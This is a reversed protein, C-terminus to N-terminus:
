SQCLRTSFGVKISSDGLLDRSSLESEGLRQAPDTGLDGEDMAGRVADRRESADALQGRLASGLHDLSRVDM